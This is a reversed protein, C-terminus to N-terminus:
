PQSDGQLICSSSSCIFDTVQSRWNLLLMMSRHTPAGLAAARPLFEQKEWWSHSAPDPHAGQSSGLVAM